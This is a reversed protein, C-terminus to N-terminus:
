EGGEIWAKVDSVRYGPRTEIRTIKPGKGEGDWRKLTQTTFGVIPALQARTLFSGYPLTDLDILTPKNQSVSM